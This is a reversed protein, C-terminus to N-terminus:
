EYVIFTLRNRLVEQIDLQKHNRKMYLYKCKIQNANRNKFYSTAMVDYDGNCYDYAWELMGAEEQTWRQCVSTGRFYQSSTKMSTTIEM